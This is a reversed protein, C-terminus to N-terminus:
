KLCSNTFTASLILGATITTLFFRVRYSTLAFGRSSGSEFTVGSGSHSIIRLHLSSRPSSFELWFTQPAAASLIVAEDGLEFLFGHEKWLFGLQGQYSDPIAASYVDVSCLSFSHDKVPDEDVREQLLPSTVSELLCHAESSIGFITVALSLSIYIIEGVELM